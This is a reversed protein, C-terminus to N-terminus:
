YKGLIETISQKLECMVSEARELEKNQMQIVQYAWLALRDGGKCREVLEGILVQHYWAIETSNLDQTQTENVFLSVLPLAYENIELLNFTRGDVECTDVIKSNTKAM